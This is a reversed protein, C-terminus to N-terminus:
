GWGTAPGVWRTTGPAPSRAPSPPSGPRRGRRGTGRSRRSGRVPTRRVRTFPGTPGPPARPGEPHSRGEVRPLERTESLSLGTVLPATTKPTPARRVYPRTVTPRSRTFPNSGAGPAALPTLSACGKGHWHCTLRWGLGPSYSTQLATRWCRARILLLLIARTPAAATAATATTPVVTPYAEIPLSTVRFTSPCTSWTVALPSVTPSTRCSWPIERFLWSSTAGASSADTFSPVVM